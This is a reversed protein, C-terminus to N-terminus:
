IKGKGGIARSKISCEPDIFLMPLEELFGSTLSILQELWSLLEVTKCKWQLVRRDWQIMDYWIMRKRITDWGGSVEGKRQTASKKLCLSHCWSEKAPGRCRSCWLPTGIRTDIGVRRNRWEICCHSTWHLLLWLVAWRPHEIARMVPLHILMLIHHFQYTIHHEKHTLSQSHTIIASNVTSEGYSPLGERYWRFCASVICRCDEAASCVWYKLWVLRKEEVDRLVRTDSM